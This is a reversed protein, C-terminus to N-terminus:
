VYPNNKETVEIALGKLILGRFDFHNQLLWIVQNVNPLRIGDDIVVGPAIKKYEKKEEDTM